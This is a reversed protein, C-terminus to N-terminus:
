TTPEVALLSTFNYKVKLYFKLFMGCHSPQNFGGHSVSTKFVAVKSKYTRRKVLKIDKNAPHMFSIFKTTVRAFRRHLVFFQVKRM